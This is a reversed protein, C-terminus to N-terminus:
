DGKGQVAVARLPQQEAVPEPKGPSQSASATEVNGRLRAGDDIGIRPTVVSGQVSGTSGLQVRDAAKLNGIVTGNVFIERAEIDAQVRGGSGVTLRGSGVRVKGQVDGDIYM